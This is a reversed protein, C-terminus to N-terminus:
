QGRVWEVFSRLMEWGLTAFGLFLFLVVGFGILAGCGIVIDWMTAGVREWFPYSSAFFSKSPGALEQIDIGGLGPAM